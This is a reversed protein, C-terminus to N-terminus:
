SLVEKVLNFIQAHNFPKTILLSIGVGRAQEKKVLDDEQVLMIIPIDEMGRIERVILSLEMGNINPLSMATILLDIPQGYAIRTAENGGEVDIIECNCGQLAFCIMRRIILSGDVILITKRQPQSNERDM